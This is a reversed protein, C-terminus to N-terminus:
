DLSMLASCWRWARGRGAVGPWAPWVGESVCSRKKQATSPTTHAPWHSAMTVSSPASHACALACVVVVVVVVVVVLLLLLLLLLLDLLFVFIFLPVPGKKTTDQCESGPNMNNANVM